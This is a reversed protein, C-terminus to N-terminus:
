WVIDFIFFIRGPFIERLRNISLKGQTSWMRYVKHVGSGPVGCEDPVESSEQVFGM